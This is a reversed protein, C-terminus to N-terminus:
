TAVVPIVSEARKDLEGIWGPKFWCSDAPFVLLFLLLSATVPKFCAEKEAKERKQMEQSEAM